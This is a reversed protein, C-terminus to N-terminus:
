FVNKKIPRNLRVWPFYYDFPRKKLFSNGKIRLGMALVM